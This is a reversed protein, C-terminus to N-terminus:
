NEDQVHDVTDYPTAIDIHEYTSDTPPTKTRVDLEVYRGESIKSKLSELEKM